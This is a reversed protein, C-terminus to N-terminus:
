CFFFFFLRSAAANNILVVGWLPRLNEWGPVKSGVVCLSTAVPINRTFSFALSAPHVSWSIGAGPSQPHPKTPAQTGDGLDCIIPGKMRSLPPCVSAFWGWVWSRGHLLRFPSFVRVLWLWLSLKSLGASGLCVWRKLLQEGSGSAFHGQFQWSVPIEVQFYLSPFYTRDTDKQQRRTEEVQAGVIQMNTQLSFLKGLFPDQCIQTQPCIQMWTSLNAWLKWIGPPAEGKNPPPRPISSGPTHSRPWKPHTLAVSQVCFQLNKEIM